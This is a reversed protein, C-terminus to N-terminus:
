IHYIFVRTCDEAICTHELLLDFVAGAVVNQEFIAIVLDLFFIGRSKFFEKLSFRVLRKCQDLSTKLPNDEVDPKM